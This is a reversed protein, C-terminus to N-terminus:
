MFGESRLRDMTLGGGPRGQGMLKRVWKGILDAELNVQRGRRASGLTTLEVTHPILTVEFWDPALGSITLSIGDVAVSGKLIMEATLEPSASFRIVTQGPQDRREVLTGTGDVHGQVFHGGLRDGVRLARELNVLDGSHLGGLTTRNLSELSVDFSAATGDLRAVTLCAGNVAISDDVGTGDTLPGLDLALRAATGTRRLGTVPRMAEIIGTFV